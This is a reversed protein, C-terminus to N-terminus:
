VGKYLYKALHGSITSEPLNKLPIRSNRQYHTVNGYLGNCRGGVAAGCVPCISSLYKTKYTIVSKKAAYGKEQIRALKNDSFYDKEARINACDIASIGFKYALVENTQNGDNILKKINSPINKKYGKWGRRYKQVTRLSVEYIDATYATSYPSNKISEITNNSIIM